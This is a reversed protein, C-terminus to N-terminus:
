TPLSFGHCTYDHLKSFGLSETLNASAENTTECEWHPIHDNQLTHNILATACTRALGKRRHKEITEISIEHTNGAIWGTFALSAVTDGLLVCFGNGMARFADISHWNDLIAGSLFAPTQISENGLIDKVNCLRGERLAPLPVPAKSRYVYVSQQWSILNRSRFAYQLDADTVPPVSSIEVYTIDKSLLRSRLHTNIFANLDEAYPKIQRGLLYFGENGQSWILAADPDAASNAFVWGPNNGELVARPEVYGEGAPLLKQVLHFQNESLEIM